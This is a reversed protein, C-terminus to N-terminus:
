VEGSYEGRAPYNKELAFDIASLLESFIPRAFPMTQVNGYYLTNDPRILFTWEHGAGCVFRSKTTQTVYEDLMTISREALRENVIAQTLPINGSCHPCGTGFMVNSPRATWEHGIACRFLTSTHSKTFEGILTIGRDELRSNVVEKTLKQKKM